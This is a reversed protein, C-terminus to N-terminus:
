QTVPVDTQTMKVPDTGNLYAEWHELFGVGLVIDLHETSTSTPDDKGMSLRSGRNAYKRQSGPVLNDKARSKKVKGANKHFLNTYAAFM